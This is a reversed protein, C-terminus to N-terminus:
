RRKVTYEMDLIKMQFCREGTESLNNGDKKIRSIIYSLIKDMSLVKNFYEYVYLAIPWM